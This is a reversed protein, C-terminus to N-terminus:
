SDFVHCDIVYVLLDYLGTWTACYGLPVNLVGESYDGNGLIVLVEKGELPVIRSVDSAAEGKAECRCGKEEVGRRLEGNSVGIGGGQM